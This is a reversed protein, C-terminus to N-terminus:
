GEYIGLYCYLNHPESIESEYLSHVYKIRINLRIICTKINHPDTQMVYIHVINLFLDSCSVFYFDVVSCVLQMEFYSNDIFSNKDYVYTRM